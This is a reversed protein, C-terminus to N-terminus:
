QHVLRRIRFKIAENLGPTGNYTAEAKNNPILQTFGSALKDLAEIMAAPALDYNKRVLSNFTDKPEVPFSKQVIIPGDDLKETVFHISVGTENEGKYLVWFPTMRGRNRPLLANHRNIVGMKPISLLETKLIAQSQNIILDPNLRKLFALFDADNASHIHQVPIDHTELWGTLTQRRAWHSYRSVLKMLKYSVTVLGNMAFHFPGMILLLSVLYEAKSQGKRITLRNGKAIAVGIIWAKKAEIIKKIFPVTQVPDDMTIVYVRM